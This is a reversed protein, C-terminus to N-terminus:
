EGNEFSKGAPSLVAERRGTTEFIKNYATEAAEIDMNCKIKWLRCSSILRNILKMTEVAAASDKPMYVQNFILNVAEQKGMKECSNKEAREIFCLHKLPTRMNCGLREKGNWPTGYAYPIDPEEDFFRVIPKDGNVIKLRDGLLKQWLLMHTTKGTGSHAALAVGTGDVDFVASHLLFGGYKSVEEAFCRCFFTTEAVSPADNEGLRIENKLDEDSAEFVMNVSDTKFIYDKCIMDAHAYHQKILIPIEAVKIIM